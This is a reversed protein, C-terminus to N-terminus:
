EDEGKEKINFLRKLCASTNNVLNTEEESVSKPMVYPLLDSVFKLKQGPSLRGWYTNIEGIKEYTFLTIMDKLKAKNQKVVSQEIKGKTYKCVLSDKKRGRTEIKIEEKKKM